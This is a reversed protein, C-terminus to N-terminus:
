KKEETPKAVRVTNFDLGTLKGSSARRSLKRGHLFGRASNLQGTLERSKDLPVSFPEDGETWFHRARISLAPRPGRAQLAQSPGDLQHQFDLLPFQGAEAALIGLSREHADCSAARATAAGGQNTRM